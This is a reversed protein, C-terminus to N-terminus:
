SKQDVERKTAPRLSVGALPTMADNGDTVDTYDNRCSDRSNHSEDCTVPDAIDSESAAIPLPEIGAVSDDVPEM